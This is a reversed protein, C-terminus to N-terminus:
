PLFRSYHFEFVALLLNAAPAPLITFGTSFDQGTFSSHFPYAALVDLGLEDFGGM